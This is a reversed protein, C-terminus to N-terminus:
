SGALRCVRDAVAAILLPPSAPPSPQPCSRADPPAAASAEALYGDRSDSSGLNLSALDKDALAGADDGGSGGGDSCLHGCTNAPTPAREGPPAGSGGDAPPAADLRLHQRGHTAVQLTWRSPTIRRTSVQVHGQRVSHRRCRGGRRARRVSEHHRYCWKARNWAGSQWGRAGVLGHRGHREASTKLKPACEAPTRPKDRGPCGPDINSTICVQHIHQHSLPAAAPTALSASFKHPTWHTIARVARKDRIHRAQM